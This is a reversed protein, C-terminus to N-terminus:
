QFMSAIASPAETPPFISILDIGALVEDLKQNQSITDIQKLDIKVKIDEDKNEM